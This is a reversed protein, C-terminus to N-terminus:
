ARPHAQRYVERLRAVSVHAYIATTNVSTHGLMEQVERINAGAQLLHTAFSHRFGHPTIACEPAAEASERKVLRRVDVDTMRRGPARYAVFLGNTDPLRGFRVGRAERYAKLAAMAPIGLVVLRQRKGKGDVRVTGTTWDVHSDNMGVLEGIRAGTSWFTELIARARLTQFDNGKPSTVVQKAQDVELWKPIRRPKSRRRLLHAPSELIRETRLLYKFFSRLAAILRLVAADGLGTEARSMLYGRLSRLDVLRIDAVADPLNRWLWGALAELDARYARMTHVSFNRMECYLLFKEVLVTVTEVREGGDALPIVPQLPLPDAMILESGTRSSRQANPM